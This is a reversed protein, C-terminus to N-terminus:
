TVSETEFGLYQWASRMGDHLPAEIALRGGVPHPLEIARAHLMMSTFPLGDIISAMGGYKRDGIIPVGLAACHVRLQHTRGTQPKLTIWAIKQGAQAM